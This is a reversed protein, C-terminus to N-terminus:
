FFRAFNRKFIPIKLKKFDHQQLFNEEQHFDKKYIIAALNFKKERLIM